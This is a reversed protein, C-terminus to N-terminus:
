TSSSHQFIYWVYVLAGGDNVTIVILIDTIWVLAWRDSESIGWLLVHVHNVDNLLEHLWTM